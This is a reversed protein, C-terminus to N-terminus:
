IQEHWCTSNVQLTSAAEDSIFSMSTMDAITHLYDHKSTEERDDENGVDDEDDCSDVEGQYLFMEDKEDNETRRIADEDLLPSEKIDVLFPCTVDRGEPSTQNPKQQLDMMVVHDMLLNTSEEISEQSLYRLLPPRKREGPSSKKRVSREPNTTVDRELQTIDLPVDIERYKELYDKPVDQNLDVKTDIHHSASLKSDSSLEKTENEIGSETELGEGSSTVQSGSDLKLNQLSENLGDANPERIECYTPAENSEEMIKEECTDGVNDQGSKCEVPDTAIQLQNDNSNCCDKEISDLDPLILKQEEKHKGSVQDGLVQVNLALVSDEEEEQVDPNRREECKEMEVQLQEDEEEVLPHKAFMPLRPESMLDQPPEPLMVIHGLLLNTSEDLSERSIQRLLKKKPHVRPVADHRSSPRSVRPWSQNLGFPLVEPKEEDEDELSIADERMWADNDELFQPNSQLSLEECQNVPRFLLNNESREGDLDKSPEM